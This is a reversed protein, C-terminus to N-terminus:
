GDGHGPKGAPGRSGTAEVSRARDARISLGVRWLCFGVLLGILASWVKGATSDARVVAAAMTVVLIVGFAFMVLNVAQVIWRKVGM